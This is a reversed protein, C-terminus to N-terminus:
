KRSRLDSKVSRLGLTWLLSGCFIYSLACVFVALLFDHIYAMSNLFRKKIFICLFGLSFYSGERFGERADKGLM